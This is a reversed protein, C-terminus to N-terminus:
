VTNWTGDDYYLIKTDTAWFFRNSGTAAPREANTGQMIMEAMRLSISQYMTQLSTTLNTSWLLVGAVDKILGPQPFNFRQPLIGM